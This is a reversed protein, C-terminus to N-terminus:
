SGYYKLKTITNNIQKLESIRQNDELNNECEVIMEEMCQVACEKAADMIGDVGFKNVYITDEIIERFRGVLTRARYDIDEQTM